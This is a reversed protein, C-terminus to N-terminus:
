PRYSMQAPFIVGTVTPDSTALRPPYFLLVNKEPIAFRSAEPGVHESFESPRAALQGAKLPVNQGSGRNVAGM